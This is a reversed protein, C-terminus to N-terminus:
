EVLHKQDPVSKANCMFIRLNFHTLIHQKKRKIYLLYERRKKITIRVKIKINKIFIISKLM